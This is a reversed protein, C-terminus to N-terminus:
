AYVQTEVDKWKQFEEESIILRSAERTVGAALAQVQFSDAFVLSSAIVRDVLRRWELYTFREVAVRLPQLSSECAVPDVKLSNAKVLKLLLQMKSDFSPPMVAVILDFRGQRRIAPDVGEIHNTAFVLLCGHRKRLDQILTLMATTILRSVADVRDGLRSQVFPDVEDVFVVGQTLQELRQFILQAQHAMMDAGLALFDSTGLTLLPWGLAAAMDKVLSTKATGPPGCLIVGWPRSTVKPGGTQSVLTGLHPQVVHDYLLHPVEEPAGDVRTIVGAITTWNDRTLRGVSAPFQVEFEDLVQFHMMRRILRNLGRVFALVMATSWAQPPGDPPPVNNSRWGITKEVYLENAVIWNLTELLRDFHRSFLQVTVDMPQRRAGALRTSRRAGIRMLATLTELAFPYVSGSAEYHFVPMVKPWLGNPLQASFFVDLGISITRVDPDQDQRERIFDVVALTYALQLPDFLEYNKAAHYAIQHLAEHEAWELAMDLATQADRWASKKSWLNSVTPRMEEDPHVVDWLARVAWYTLFGNPQYDPAFHIGGECERLRDVLFQVAGHSRQDGLRGPALRLLTALAMPATYVNHEALRESTWPTGLLWTVFGDPKFFAPRLADPGDVLSLVCTCSSTVHNAVAENTSGTLSFTSRRPIWFQEIIAEHRDMLVEIRREARRAAEIDV